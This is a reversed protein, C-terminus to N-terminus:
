IAPFFIVSNDLEIAGLMVPTVTTAYPPVVYLDVNDVSLCVKTSLPDCLNV